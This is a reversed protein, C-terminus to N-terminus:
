QGQQEQQVLPDPSASAPQESLVSRELLEPPVMRGSLVQLARAVSLDPRALAERLGLQARPVLQAWELRVRRVPQDQPASAALVRPARGAQPAKRVPRAQGRPAWLVRM